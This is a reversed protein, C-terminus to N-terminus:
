QGGLASLHHRDPPPLLDTLLGAVPALAPHELNRVLHRWVRPILAAYHPKGRDSSLRAFIGIIRLARQAGIVACATRFGHDDQGTLTIFRATMALDTAASVDRRADQLLSVLDYAPHATMADQFDLLGVRAVNSRGPLWILNEAHYDRLIMVPPEYLAMTLIDEFRDRFNMQDQARTEGGGPAVYTEFVLMAQEAMMAADYHDLGPAEGAAQLAVLTDTAAQYLEKERQPERDLVRAFLDDGFDELLLFGNETDEALIEPASLGIGTLYRAIHLFPAVDEGSSPPADMLVAHRGDSPHIIREYRRLSADGALPTRTAGTWGADALFTDAAQRRDDQM